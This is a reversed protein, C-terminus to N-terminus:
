GSPTAAARERLRVRVEPARALATRVLRCITGVMEEDVATGTPFCLVRDALRETNPLNAVRGRSRYPEMRHCGPSFYRRAVVNEAALVGQIEDRTLGATESDIETVVYQFNCRESEDYRIVKVGALGALGEAYARHNRFNVKVIEDLAELSTLGMAASVESMKGNTGVDRTLDPEAFGFNRMRRATTAVEDDNTVIAGGEFSNVFKTAHFSFVEASGFNGVMRGGHSCGFAHAADYILRLRHRRAVAELGETDCARGWLHVALIGTVDPGIAREVAAPDLTHRDPDVDAFVPRIGVWELAHPSAVFTFSPVVVAGRMGTARIAIELGVTANCVAICHRVGILSTIERELQRVYPGDNSLWRTDLAVRLRELL